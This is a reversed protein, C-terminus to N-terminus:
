YQPTIFFYGRVQISHSSNNTLTFTIVDQYHPFFSGNVCKSKLDSNLHIPKNNINVAVKLHQPSIIGDINGICLVANVPGRAANTTYIINGTYQGTNNADLRNNINNPLRQFSFGSYQNEYTYSLRCINVTSNPPVVQNFATYISFNQVYQPNMLGEGNGDGIMGNGGNMGINHGSLAPMYFTEGNYVHKIWKITGLTHVETTM